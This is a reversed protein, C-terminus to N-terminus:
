NIAKLRKKWRLITSPSVKVFKAIQRISLGAKIMETARNIKINESRLGYHFEEYHATWTKGCVRCRFRKTKKDHV